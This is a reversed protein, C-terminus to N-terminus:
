PTVERLPCTGTHTPEEDGTWWACEPWACMGTHEGGDELIRRMIERDVLVKGEAGHVELGAVTAAPDSSPALSVRGTAEM